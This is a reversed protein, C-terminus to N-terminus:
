FKVGGAVLSCKKIEDSVVIGASLTTSTWFPRPRDLATDGLPDMELRDEMYEVWDDAPLEDEDAKESWRLESLFDARVLSRSLRSPLVTM